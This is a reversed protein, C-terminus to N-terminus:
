RAAYVCGSGRRLVKYKWVIAEKEEKKMLPKTVWVKLRLCGFNRQNHCMLCIMQWAPHSPCRVWGWPHCLISLYGDQLQAQPLHSLGVGRQRRKPKGGSQRGLDAPKALQLSDPRAKRSAQAWPAPSLSHCRAALTPFTSNNKHLGCPPLLRTLIQLFVAGLSAPLLLFAGEKNIPLQLNSHSAVSILNPIRSWVIIFM